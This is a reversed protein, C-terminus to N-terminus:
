EIGVGITYVNNTVYGGHNSVIRLLYIGNKVITGNSSKGGFTVYREGVFEYKEGNVFVGLKDYVWVELKVVADSKIKLNVICDNSYSSLSIGGSEKKVVSNELKEVYEGVFKSDSCQKVGYELKLTDVVTDILTREVIKEKEVVRIKEITDIRLKEVVDILIVTDKIVVTDYVIGIKKEKFITDNICRVSFGNQIPDTAGTLNQVGLGILYRYGEDGIKESTWYYENGKPYVITGGPERRTNPLGFWGLEDVGNGNMGHFDPFGSTAKLKVGALLMGGARIGLTDFEKRKPLHWGPFCVSQASNWSYFRGYLKCSDENNYGCWNEKDSVFNLNQAM